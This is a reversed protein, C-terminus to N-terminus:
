ALSFRFAPIFVASDSDLGITRFHVKMWDLLLRYISARGDETAPDFKQIAITAEKRELHKPRSAARLAKWAVASLDPNGQLDQGITL